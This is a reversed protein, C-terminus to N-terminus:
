RDIPEHPHRTDYTGILTGNENFVDSGTAIDQIPVENFPVLSTSGDAENLRLFIYSLEDSYFDIIVLGQENRAKGVAVDAHFAFGLPWPQEHM